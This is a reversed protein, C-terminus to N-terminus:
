YIFKGDAVNKLHQDYPSKGYREASTVLTTKDIWGNKYAIEELASAKVGQWKEIMQVFESAKWLVIWQGQILGLLDVVPFLAKWNIACFCVGLIMTVICSSQKQNLSFLTRGKIDNIRYTM